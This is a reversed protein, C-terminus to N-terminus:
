STSTCQNSAPSPATFPNVTTSTKAPSFLLLEFIINLPFSLKDVIQGLINCHYNWHFKSSMIFHQMPCICMIVSPMGYSPDACSVSWGLWRARMMVYESNAATPSIYAPTHRSKLVINLLLFHTPEKCICKARHVATLRNSWICEIDSATQM